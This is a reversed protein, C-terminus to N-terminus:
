DDYGIARRQGSAFSRIEETLANAMAYLDLSFLLFEWGTKSAVQETAQNWWQSKTLGGRLLRSAPIALASTRWNIVQDQLLQMPDVQSLASAINAVTNFMNALDSKGPLLNGFANLTEKEFVTVCLPKKNPAVSFFSM